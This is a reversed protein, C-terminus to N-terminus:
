LRQCLQWELIQNVEESAALREGRKYSASITESQFLGATHPAM